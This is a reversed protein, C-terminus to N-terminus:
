TPAPAPAKEWPMRTSFRLPGTDGLGPHAPPNGARCTSANLSLQCKFSFPLFFSFSHPTRPKASVTSPCHALSSAPTTRLSCSPNARRPKLNAQRTGEAVSVPVSGPCPRVSPDCPQPVTGVATVSLASSRTEDGDNPLLPVDSCGPSTNWSQKELCPNGWHRQVGEQAFGLIARAYLVM